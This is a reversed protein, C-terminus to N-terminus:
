RLKEDGSYTKIEMEESPHKWWVFNGTPLEKRDSSLCTLGIGEAGWLKLQSSDSSNMNGQLYHTM